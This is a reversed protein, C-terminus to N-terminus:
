KPRVAVGTGSRSGWSLPSIKVSSIETEVVELAGLKAADERLKQEVQEVTPDANFATTKNVTVQLEGLKVQTAPDFNSSTLKIQNAAVANVSQKKVDSDLNTTDWTTSCAAIPLILAGVLVTNRFM